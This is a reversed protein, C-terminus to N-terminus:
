CGKVCNDLVQEYGTAKVYEKRSREVSLQLLQRFNEDEVFRRIAGAIEVDRPEFTLDNPFEPPAVMRSLLAPKSYSLARMVPGSSAFVETYPLIVGDAASFYLSIRSEPVFGDWRANNLGAFSSQWKTYCELYGRDNALHPNKGSVMVLFVRKGALTANVSEM